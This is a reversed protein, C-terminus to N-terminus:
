NDSITGRLRRRVYDASGFSGYEAVATITYLTRTTAVETHQSSTCTVDVGFGKLGGEALALTTDAPCAAGTLSQYIGWELGSRAAAFARASQLSITSTTREVGAMNVMITGALALIVMLFIASPLAFGRTGPTRSM